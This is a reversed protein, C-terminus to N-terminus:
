GSGRAATVVHEAPPVWGYREGLLGILFPRSREVEDLCVKLVLLQKAQRGKLM